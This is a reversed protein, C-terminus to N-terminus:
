HKPTKASPPTKPTAKSGTKAADNGAHSGDGHDTSAGKDLGGPDAAVADRWTIDSTDWRVDLLSWDHASEPVSAADLGRLLQAAKHLDAWKREVPREGIAGSGPARGFWVTRRRELQIVVGANEVSAARANTADILPPGLLKFDDADLGGRMSLAVDLADVHRPQTLREGARTMDFAGDNPGIVPLFGERGPALESWTPTPWRGPLIMGDEAVHLFENGQRVCAAPRRLQVPVDVGNPWLVRPEGIAAVFPQAAVLAAVRDIGERDHPSFPPVCAIQLRLLDDWRPDAFSARAELRSSRPDIEIVGSAGVGAGIQSLIWVLAVVLIGAPIWAPVRGSTSGRRLAQSAARM